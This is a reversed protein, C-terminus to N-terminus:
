FRRAIVIGIGVASVIVPIMWSFSQAGALILATSDISLFEGGVVDETCENLFLFSNLALVRNDQQNINAVPDSDSAWNSDGTIVVCGKGFEGAVMADGLQDSVVVDPSGLADVLTSAGFQQWTTVGSFLTATAPITSDFNVGDVYPAIANNDINADTVFRELLSETGPGCFPGAEGTLLLEGGNSVWDVILDEDAQSYPNTLCGNFAESTIFLKTICEPIGQTSIDVERVTFPQAQLDAVLTPHDAEGGGGNSTDFAIIIGTDNDCDVQALQSPAFADPSLVEDSGTATLAFAQSTSLGTILVLALTGVLLKYNEL